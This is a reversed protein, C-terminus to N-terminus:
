FVLFDPNLCNVYEANEGAGGVQLGDIGNSEEYIWTGGGAVYGTGPPDGREHVYEGFLEIEDKADCTGDANFVVWDDESPVIAPASANGEVRITVNATANRAGDTVYLVVTFNGAEGFTYTANGPFRTGNGASAAATANGTANGDAPTVVLSWTINTGAAHTGNVTFTVNLPATGNLASATLNATPAPPPPATTNSATATGSSSTTAVSQAEPDDKKEAVCGSVSASLVLALAVLAVGRM